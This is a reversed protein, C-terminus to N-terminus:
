GVRGRHCWRGLLRLGFPARREGRQLTADFLVIHHRQETELQFTLNPSSPPTLDRPIMSLAGPVPEPGVSSDGMIYRCHLDVMYLGGMYRGLIVM